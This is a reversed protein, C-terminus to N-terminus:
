PTAGPLYFAYVYGDQSSLYVAGDAVTPSSLRLNPALHSLGSATQRPDCTQVGNGCGSADYIYLTDNNGSLYLLGNAVMPSSLFAANVQTSKWLPMGKDATLAYLEGDDSGIYVVGHAIAPSSHIAGGTTYTWALKGGLADLAYLKNDTSGIYILGNVIAPSSWIMGGTLYSWKVSHTTTDIAYVKSDWSGVYVIGNAVAPSSPVGPQSSTPIGLQISWLPNCSSTKGDCGTANYAYLNGDQSGVYVIGNNVVPSSFISNVTPASVWLPSCPSQSCGDANFAYLKHDWSGVYVVGKVVTPSSTIHALSSTIHDGTQAFWRVKGTRADLAYLRGDWSGVYVIGNVVAPSSPFFTDAVGTGIPATWRLKLSRVTSPSIIRESPNFHTHQTDFGFMSVNVLGPSSTAPVTTTVGPHTPTTAPQQSNSKAIRLFVLLSAILVCAILLSTLTIFSTPMRRYKSSQPTMSMKMGSSTAGVHDDQQSSKQNSWRLKIRILLPPKKPLENLTRQIETTIDYWAKDRDSRSKSNIPKSDRPLVQLGGFPQDEWHCSRLIIPIVPTKERKYKEMAQQVHHQCEPSNLSSVSVLLLIISAKNLYENIVRERKGGPLVNREGWLIAARGKLSPQLQNQLEEFSNQDEPAYSCFIVKDEEM